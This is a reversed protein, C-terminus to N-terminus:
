PQREATGERDAEDGFVALRLLVRVEAVPVHGDFDSICCVIHLLQSAVGVPKADEPEIVLGRLLPELEPGVDGWGCSVRERAQQPCADAVERQEGHPPTERRRGPGRRRSGWQRGCLRGHHRRRCGRPRKGCWCRSGRGHRWIWRRRWRGRRCGRRRRLGCRGSSQGWCGRWRGRGRRRRLRDRGLELNHSGGDGGEHGRVM